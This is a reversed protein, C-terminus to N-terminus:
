GHGKPFRVISLWYGEISRVVAIFQDLDMPKTIYSNAHSKYARMVDAEDESTTLMIVPIDVLEPDDKIQALVELGSMRPLNLDLLVFDPRPAGAHEGERRLFRMAAEGDSVSHLENAVRADQLVERTLEVDTPSDEVLLVQATVANV